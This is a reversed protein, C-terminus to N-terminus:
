AREEQAYQRAKIEAEVFKKDSQVPTKEIRAKAIRRCNCERCLRSYDERPLDCLACKM